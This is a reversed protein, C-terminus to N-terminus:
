TYHLTESEKIKRCLYSCGIFPHFMGYEDLLKSRFYSNTDLRLHSFARAFVELDIPIKAEEELEAFVEKELPIKAEKELKKDADDQKLEDGLGSPQHLTASKLDNHILGIDSM